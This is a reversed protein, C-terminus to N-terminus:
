SVGYVYMFAYQTDLNNTVSHIFVSETIECSITM